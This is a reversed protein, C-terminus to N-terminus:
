SWLCKHKSKRTYAKKNKFAKAVPAQKKRIKPEPIVLTFATSM